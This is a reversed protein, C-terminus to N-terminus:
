SCWYAGAAGKILHDRQSATLFVCSKPVALCDHSGGARRLTGSSALMSGGIKQYHLKRLNTQKSFIDANRKSIALMCSNPLRTILFTQKLYKRERYCTSCGKNQATIMLIGITQKTLLNKPLLNITLPAIDETENIFSIQSIFSKYCAITQKTLLNKPLLNITLPAIDETENIFAKCYCAWEKVFADPIYEFIGDSFQWDEQSKGM